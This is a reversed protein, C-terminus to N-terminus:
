GFDGTNVGTKRRDAQVPKERKKLRQYYAIRKVVIHQAKRGKKWREWKPV